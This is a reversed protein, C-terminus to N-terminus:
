HIDPTSPHPCHYIYSICKASLAQTARGYIWCPHVARLCHRSPAPPRAPQRVPQSSSYSIVGHSEHSVPLLFPFPFAFDTKRHAPHSSTQCTNKHPRSITQPLHIFPLCYSIYTCTVIYQQCSTRISAISEM